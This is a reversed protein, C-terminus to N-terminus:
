PPWKPGSRRPMVRCQAGWATVVAGRDTNLVARWPGARCMMLNSADLEDTGFSQTFAPANDSWGRTEIASRVRERENSWMRVRADDAGLVQALAIARDLAVWCMLTSYVFERAPGRVEWIGQDSETWRDAATDAVGILFAATVPDFTGVRPALLAAASLLEGYVDRQSQNWAGNGIRVPRSGGYGELHELEHEPVLREAGVEYLIQLASHRGGQGAGAATALFDFFHRAEDPCAAIWLASM